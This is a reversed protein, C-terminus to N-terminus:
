ATEHLAIAEHGTLFSIFKPLTFAAHSISREGAEACLADAFVSWRKRLNDMDEHMCLNGSRIRGKLAHYASFVCSLIKLNNISPAKVGFRVLPCGESDFFYKLFAFVHPCM